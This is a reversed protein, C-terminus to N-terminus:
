PGDPHYKIKFGEWIGSEKAGAKLRKDETLRSSVHKGTSDLFNVFDNSTKKIEFREWSLPCYRNSVLQGGERNDASVIRKNFGMLIFKRDNLEFLTFIDQEQEKQITRNAVLKDGGWYGSEVCVYKNESDIVSIRHVKKVVMKELYDVEIRIREIEDCKKNYQAIAKKNEAVMKRLQEAKMASPANMFIDRKIESIRKIEAFTDLLLKITRAVHQCAASRKKFLEDFVNKQEAPKLDAATALIEWETELLGFKTQDVNEHALTGCFFKLENDYNKQVVLEIHKLINEYDEAATINQGNEAESAVKGLVQKISEIFRNESPATVKQGEDELSVRIRSALQKIDGTNELHGRDDWHFELCDAPLFKQNVSIKRDRDSKGHINDGDFIFRVCKKLGGNEFTEIFM